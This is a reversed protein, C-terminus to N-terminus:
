DLRTRRDPRRFRGLYCRSAVSRRVLSRKTSKLTTFFVFIVLPDAGTGMSINVEEVADVKSRRAVLPLPGRMVASVIPSEIPREQHGRRAKLM